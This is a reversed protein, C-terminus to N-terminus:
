AKHDVSVSVNAEHKKNYKTQADTIRGAAILEAADAAKDFVEELVKQEDKSPKKLVYDALLLSEDKGVGIRM